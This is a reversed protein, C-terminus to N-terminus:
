FQNLLVGRRKWDNMDGNQNVLQQPQHTLKEIRRAHDLTGFSIIFLDEQVMKM